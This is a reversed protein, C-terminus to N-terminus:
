LIWCVFQILILVTSSNIIIIVIIIIIKNNNIASNTVVVTVMVCINAILSCSINFYYHWFHKLKYLLFAHASVLCLTHPNLTKGQALPNKSNNSNHAYHHQAPIQRHLKQVHPLELNRGWSTCGIKHPLLKLESVDSIGSHFWPVFM